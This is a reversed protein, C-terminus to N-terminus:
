SSDNLTSQFHEKPSYHQDLETLILTEQSEKSIVENISALFLEDGDTSPLPSSPQLIDLTENGPDINEESDFTFNFFDNRVMTREETSNLLAQTGSFSQNGQDSNSFSRILEQTSEAIMNSDPYFEKKPAVSHSKKRLSQVSAVQPVQPIKFEPPSQNNTTVMSCEFENIPRPEDNEFLAVTQDLDVNNEGLATFPQTTIDVKDIKTCNPNNLCYKEHFHPDDSLEFWDEPNPTVPAYLEVSIRRYEKCEALLDQMIKINQLKEKKIRAYSEHIPAYYAATQKRIEAAEIELQELSKLNRDIETLKENFIPDSNRLQEILETLSRKESMQRLIRFIKCNKKKLEQM